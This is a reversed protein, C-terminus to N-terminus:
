SKLKIIWIRRRIKMNTILIEDTQKAIFRIMEDQSTTYVILRKTEIVMERNGRDFRINHVEEGSPDVTM